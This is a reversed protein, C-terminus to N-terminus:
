PTVTLQKSDSRTGVTATITASSNVVVNKPSITATAASNAGTSTNSTAPAITAAGTASWTVTRGQLRQNNADYVVATAIATQNKDKISTKDLTLEVRAVIGPTVTITTSASKGESTATITATGVLAGTITVSEGTGSVSAVSPNDSEWTIARGTLTGGSADRAAASITTSANQAISTTTASIAVSAVPAPSVTVTATGTKDEAKAEVVAAGAALGTVEGTNANISVFAGGSVIRWTVSRDTVVVNRTDRVTAALTVKQGVTITAGAVTVSQVPARTVTLATSGVVGDVTATIQATGPGQATLDGNSITAVQTNSSAWTVQRGTLVNGSADQASFTLHQTQGAVMSVPNPTVIVKSVAGPSVTFESVDTKGEAAATITVTGTAKTTVLGNQVTAVSADSTTWVFGRDPLENQAADYAKAELKTTTGISTSVRDPLVSVSAVPTKTVTVSAIGSKGRANAAIQTTGLALATVVGANSVSAVAPNEVTWTVSADPVLEGAENRVLAQLPLQANLALTSAPPNVVIDAVQTTAAGPETSGCSWSALAVLAALSRRFKMM